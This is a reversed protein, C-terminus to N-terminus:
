KGDNIVMWRIEGPALTVAVHNGEGDYVNTKQEQNTNNLIAYMNNDPYAHVECYLNDAYWKKFEEEKHAAYYLSRLLVRTNQTSYPLGAIYVGRGKGYTHAGLHVEGTSYSIIETNENLAYINRMGEGFDLEEM